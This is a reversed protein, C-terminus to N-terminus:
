RLRDTSRPLAAAVAIAGMDDAAAAELQGCTRDGILGAEAQGVWCAEAAFERWDLPVTAVFAGLALGLGLGYCQTLLRGVEDERM